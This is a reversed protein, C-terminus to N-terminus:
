KGAVFTIPAHDSSTPTLVLRGASQDLQYRYSDNLPYLWNTEVALQDGSIAWLFDYDNTHNNTTLTGKGVETFQWVVGPQDELQWAGVSLLYEADRVAPAAFLNLCLVVAGAVLAVLGLGFIILPAKKRRTAKQATPAKKTTAGADAQSAHADYNPDFARALEDPSPTSTKNDNIM